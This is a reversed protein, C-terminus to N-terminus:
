AAKQAPVTYGELLLTVQRALAEQAAEDLPTHEVRVRGHGLYVVETVQPFQFIQQLPCPSLRFPARPVRPDSSPAIITPDDGLHLGEAVVEFTDFSSSLVSMLAGENNVVEALGCLLLSIGSM